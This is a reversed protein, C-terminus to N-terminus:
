AALTGFTISSISTLVLHLKEASTTSTQSQKSACARAGGFEAWVCGRFAASGHPGHVAFAGCAFSMHHKHAVHWTLDKPCRISCACTVLSASQTSCAKTALYQEPKSRACHSAQIHQDVMSSSKSISRIMRRCGEV